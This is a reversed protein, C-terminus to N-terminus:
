VPPQVTVHCPAEPFWSTPVVIKWPMCASAGFACKVNEASADAGIVPESTPTTTTPSVGYASPTPSM